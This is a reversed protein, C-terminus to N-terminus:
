RFRRRQLRVAPLRNAAAAAWREVVVSGAAGAVAGVFWAGVNALKSEPPIEVALNCAVFVVTAVVVVALAALYLRAGLREDRRALRRRDLALGPGQVVAFLLIPTLTWLWTRDAGRLTAEASCGALVPLWPAALLPPAWTPLRARWRRRRPRPVIHHQRRM